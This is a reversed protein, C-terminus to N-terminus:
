PIITLSPTPFSSNLLSSPSVEDSSVPANVVPMAQAAFMKSLKPSVTVHANAAAKQEKELRRVKNYIDNSNIELVDAVKAAQEVPEQMFGQKCKGDNKDLHAIYLTAYLKILTKWADTSDKDFRRYPGRVDSSDKTMRRMKSSQVDNNQKDM